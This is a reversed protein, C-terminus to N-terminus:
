LQQKIWSKDKSKILSISTAILIFLSTLFKIPQNYLYSIVTTLISIAILAKFYIRGQILEDRALYAILFGVPIALGLLIIEVIM